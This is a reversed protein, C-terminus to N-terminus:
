CSQSPSNCLTISWTGEKNGVSIQVKYCKSTLDTSIETEEAGKLDSVPPGGHHVGEVGRQLVANLERGPDQLSNEEAAGPRVVEVVSGNAPDDPVLDRM